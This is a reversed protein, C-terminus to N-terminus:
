NSRRPQEPANDELVQAVIQQTVAPNEAKLCNAIAAPDPRQPRAGEAPRPMCTELAATPVHLDAALEDLPPGPPPGNQATAAMPVVTAAAICWITLQKSFFTNMIAECM